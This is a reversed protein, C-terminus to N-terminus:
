LYEGYIGIKISSIKAKKLQVFIPLGVSVLGVVSVSISVGM